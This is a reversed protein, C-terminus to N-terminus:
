KEFIPSSFTTNCSFVGKFFSFFDAETSVRVSIALKVHNACQKNKWCLCFFTFKFFTSEGLLSREMVNKREASSKIQLISVFSNNKIRFFIFSYYFKIKLERNNVM